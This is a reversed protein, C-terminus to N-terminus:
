RAGFERPPVTQLYAWLARIEDDTMLTTYKVPMAEAIPAGGPRVGDRLARFFDAETYRGLGTPTLNSAPPAGPEGMPGGALTPGHCGTCGGVDALYRGYAATPGPEPSEPRRAHDIRAAPVLPLRDAVFLARGVLRLTTPPLERDVPPLQRLFAVLAVLDPDSMGIWDESPMIVLGRGDRAVGHRVAREWDAMAYDAGIGGRGRTLNASSARGLAPDDIMVQGGFDDGHCAACKAIATAVHRGRAVLASDSAPEAPPHPEVAYTRALKRGGAVHVGAASVALLLVLVGLGIALRRLFTRM